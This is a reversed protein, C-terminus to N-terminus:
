EDSVVPEEVTAVLEGGERITDRGGPKLDFRMWNLHKAASM